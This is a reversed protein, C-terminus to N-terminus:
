LNVIYIPGPSNNPGNLCPALAYDGWIDVDCVTSGPPLQLIEEVAEKKRDYFILRAEPRAAIVLKGKHQTVGHPTQSLKKGGFLGGKYAFEGLDIPALYAKGYGDTVVAESDSIFSVDTPRFEKAASYPASPPAGLTKVEDFRTDMLYVEGEVDDAAAIWTSGAHERLEAGHLNGKALKPNAQVVSVTQFCDKLAVWGVNQLGWYITASKKDIVITGHAGRINKRVAEPLVGVPQPIFQWVGQGSRPGAESRGGHKRIPLKTEPVIQLQLAPATSADVEHTHGEHSRVTQAGMAAVAILLLIRM